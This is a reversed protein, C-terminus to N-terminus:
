KTCVDTYQYFLDAIVCKKISIKRYKVTLASFIWLNVSVHIGLNLIFSEPNMVFVFVQLSILYDNADIGNHNNEGLTHEHKQNRKIGESERRFCLRGWMLYLMVNTHTPLCSNGNPRSIANLLQITVSVSTTHKIKCLTYAQLTFHMYGILTEM